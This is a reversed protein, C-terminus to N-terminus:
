YPTQLSPRQEEMAIPSDLPRLHTNLVAHVMSHHWVTTWKLTFVLRKQARILVIRRVM